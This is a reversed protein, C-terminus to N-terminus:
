DVIHHKGIVRVTTAQPGNDGMEEDFRVEDGIELADFNANILSNRHFYVDRGDSTAIRGYNERPAIDSVTGHPPTGHHKVKQGRRRVYDELQRRVADFADRVLVYPDQYAQHKDPSRTVTIEHGPVTIDISLRYLNGKHHHHHPAEVVVRGSMICDAFDDLKEARERIKADLSESKMVHHYTIQLPLQM